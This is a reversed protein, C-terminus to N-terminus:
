FSVQYFNYKQSTQKWRAPDLHPFLILIRHKWRVVYIYNHQTHRM